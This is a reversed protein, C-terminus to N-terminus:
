VNSTAKSNNVDAAEELDIYRTLFNFVTCLIILLLQLEKVQPFSISNGGKFGFYRSSMYSKDLTKVAETFRKPHINNKGGIIKMSKNIEPHKKCLLEFNKLCGHGSSTKKVGSNILLSKILLEFGHAYNFSIVFMYSIFKRKQKDTGDALGKVETFLTWAARLYGSAVLMQSAHKNDFKLSSVPLPISNSM